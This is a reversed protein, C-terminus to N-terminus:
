DFPPHWAAEGTAAKQCRLVPDGCQRDRRAERAPAVQMPRDFPGRLADTRYMERGAWQHAAVVNM